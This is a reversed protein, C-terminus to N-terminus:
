TGHNFVMGGLMGYGGLQEQIRQPTPRLTQPTRHAPERVAQRDNHGPKLDIHWGTPSEGHHPEFSTRRQDAGSNPM